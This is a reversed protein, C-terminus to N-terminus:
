YIPLSINHLYYGGALIGMLGGFSKGFMILYVDYHGDARKEPKKVDPSLHFSVRSDALSYIGVGVIFCINIITFLVGFTNIKVFIALDRKATILFLLAFVILVTYSYSFEGFDMNLDTADKDQGLIALIVPFLLQSLLQVYLIVPISLMLIFCFMGFYWGKAGFTKKLTDTYDIDKGATVMIFYQTSFSISFAVITLIIGLVIGAESYAWPTFVLGSGVMGNWASFINTASGHKGSDDADFPSQLVISEKAMSYRPIKKFSGKNGLHGFGAGSASM